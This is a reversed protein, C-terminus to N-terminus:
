KLWYGCIAGIITGGVEKNNSTFLYIALLLLIVSVVIRGIAKIKDDKTTTSQDEGLHVPKLAKTTEDITTGFLKIM